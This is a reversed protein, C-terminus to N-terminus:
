HGRQAQKAALKTCDGDNAASPNNLQPVPNYTTGSDNGIAAAGDVAKGKNPNYKVAGITYSGDTNEEISIARFLRPSINDLHATFVAYPAANPAKNLQCTDGALVKTVTFEHTEGDLCFIKILRPARLSRDFRVVQGDVSLIRGGVNDGAFDNDGGIHGLGRKGHRTDTKHNIGSKCPDGPVVWAGASGTEFHAANGLGRTLLASATAAPGSWTSADAQVALLIKEGAFGKGQRFDLTGVQGLDDQLHDVEFQAIRGPEGENIGRRGGSDAIAVADKLFQPGNDIVVVEGGVAAQHGPQRKIRANGADDDLAHRQARAALDGDEGGGKGNLIGSHPRRVLFVLGILDM